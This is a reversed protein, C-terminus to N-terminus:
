LTYIYIQICSLGQGNNTGRPNPLRRQEMNQACKITRIAPGIKKFIVIDEKKILRAQRFKSIFSNPKHKLKM